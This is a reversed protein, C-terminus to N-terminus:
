ANPSVIEVGFYDVRLLLEEVKSLWDPDNINRELGGLWGGAGDGDALASKWAYVKRRMVKYILGVIGRERPRRQWTEDDWVEWGMGEVYRLRGAYETLFMEAVFGYHISNKSMKDPLSHHRGFYVGKEAAECLKKESFNPGYLKSRAKEYLERKVEEFRDGLIENAMGLNVFAQYIWDYPNEEFPAISIKKHAEHVLCDAIEATLTKELVWKEFDSAMDM